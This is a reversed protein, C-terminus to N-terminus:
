HYFICVELSQLDRGAPIHCQLGWAGARMERGKPQPPHVHIKSVSRSEKDAYLEVYLPNITSDIVM